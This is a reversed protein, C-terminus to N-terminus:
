SLLESKESKRKQMEDNVTGIEMQAKTFDKRPQGSFRITDIFMQPLTILSILAYPVSKDFMQWIIMGILLFGSLVQLVAFAIAQQLTSMDNTFRSMVDGTEQESFFGLSLKQM